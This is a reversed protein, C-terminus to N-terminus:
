GGDLTKILDFLREYFYPTTITEEGVKVLTDKDISWPLSISGLAAVSVGASTGKAKMEYRTELASAYIVSGLASPLCVMTISLRDADEPTPRFYKEGRITGQRTDDIQYGQSLLARKVIECAADPERSSYYEFPSESSFTETQYSRSQKMSGCAVVTASLLIVALLRCRAFLSMAHAKMLGYKLCNEVRAPHKIQDVQRLRPLFTAM